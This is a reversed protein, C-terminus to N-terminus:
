GGAGEGRWDQHLNRPDTGRVHKLVKADIHRHFQRPHSPVKLVMGHSLDYVFTLRGWHAGELALSTSLVFNRGFTENRLFKNIVVARELSGCEVFENVVM